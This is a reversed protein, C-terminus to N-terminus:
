PAKRLFTGFARPGDGVQMKGIVALKEADISWVENSFWNAVYVRRGDASTEIGEPYEGVQIRTLPQLTKLDFVTVTEGYQDTSFGHGQALAM